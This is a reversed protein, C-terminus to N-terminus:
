WSSLQSDSLIKSGKKSLTIRSYPPSGQTEERAIWRLHSPVGKEYKPTSSAKILAM